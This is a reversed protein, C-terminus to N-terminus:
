INILVLWKLDSDLVILFYMGQVRFLIQAYCFPSKAIGFCCDLFCGHGTLLQSIYFDIDGHKQQLWIRIYLILMHTWIANPSAVWRKQWGNLSEERAEVVNSIKRYVYIREKALQDITIRGAVVLGVEDSITKYACCVWLVTLRNVRNTSRLFTQYSMCDAWVSLM